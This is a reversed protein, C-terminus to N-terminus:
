ISDTLAFVLEVTCAIKESIKACAEGFGIHGKRNTITCELELVDGPGVPNKFRCNNIGAFVPLKKENGKETLLAVAGVQALAEVILVGPMIQNGPFHGTFYQEGSSVCKIGRAWKGPVYDSIKDVMLMPFRHPIIKKLEDNSLQM